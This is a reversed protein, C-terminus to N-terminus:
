QPGMSLINILEQEVGDLAYRHEVLELMDRHKDFEKGPDQPGGMGAGSMQQAMARASDADNNDGLVLAFISRSGFLNLFYFSASSVWSSSLAPLDVGRMLMSKFRLTLPFPVKTIVFGEFISNIIYGMFIYPVMNVVQGKMMNMMMYPDSAPNVPGGEPKKAVFLGKESNFYHRRM